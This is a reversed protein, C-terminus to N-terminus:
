RGGVTSDPQSQGKLFDAMMQESFAMPHGEWRIIGRSDILFMYPITMVQYKRGTADDKDLVVRSKMGMRAMSGVVRDRDEGSLSIFIVQDSAFKTVLDNMHPIAAWCPRCWTAFFELVVTKGAVPGAGKIEGSLWDGIEIKPAPAGVEPEGALARGAILFMIALGMKFTKM